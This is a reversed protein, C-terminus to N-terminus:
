LPREGKEQLAVETVQNHLVYWLYGSVHQHGMRHLLSMYRKVQLHYEPRPKGFKFDVVITERDDTMVRDPRHEQIEGTSPNKELITCENYLKWKPSFWSSVQPNKMAIAIKQQLLTPSLYDDYLIGELELERLRCPVDELTHISSFLEHMISGLKIYSVSSANSDGDEGSVFEKSKNSQRFEVPKDFSEVKVFHLEEPETFVNKQASTKIQEAQTSTRQVTSSLDGWEFTLHTKADEIGTLICGELSISKNDGYPIPRIPSEALRPLTEELIESRNISTAELTAKKKIKDKSMRKGLVFLSKSARTFAVYLLNMNDVVNQLHEEKYDEEYITDQMQKKSFAVPIIPLKDYPDKTKQKCWIIDNKELEWDCFPIIVHNFELGKSKHISLIRIGNVEDSQISKKHYTNDWEQLFDAISSSHDQLHSSVIDYFACVYASQNEIKSLSFIAYLKDVLDMFPMARLLEANRFAEPLAESLPHDVFIATDDMGDKLIYLHYNRALTAITLMDDPHILARLAWVLMNVALSADLRFAEDSVLHLEPRERMFLEAIEPIVGNVRVLIAIENATIGRETLNDVADLLSSMVNERYDTDPLLEIKVYGKGDKHSPKQVLEEPNYAKTLQNAEAIEDSKLEEMTKRVAEIFFANNFNVIKQESRYNTHLPEEKVQKESFEQRINNLLRWDGSRWRYISQKVDGVILSHSREQALCDLLLLKFNEWQIRSTDQFEDIMIHKLQAGIREFVFPTDSDKILAHLLSQTNSLQFRNTAKNIDNVVEDIAHLLRLQNLNRLTLHASQCEYWGKKRKEEFATLVPILQNTAFDTLPQQPASASIMNQPNDIFAQVRPPIPSNDFVQTTSLKKLYSPLTGQLKYKFYSADDFGSKEFLEYLQKAEKVLTEQILDKTRHLKQTFTSFFKENKMLKDLSRSHKKYSDDFINMGFTKISGIVNWSRDDEINRKIYDRIWQLLRSNDSLSAILEDVAQEEVQQDNLDIRLNATLDLERALNRLINQFFADITQVRFYNYHHLLHTLAIGANEIISDESLGTKAAVAKLYDHSSELRKWIGYLQSIIRMKMEETAKNTFTVALIQEYNKPNIVLLSIYEVALTFTKGSGASAKYVTLPKAKDM